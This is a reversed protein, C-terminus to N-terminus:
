AVRTVTWSGDDNAAVSFKRNLRGGRFKAYKKFTRLNTPTVFSAGLDMTHFPYITRPNDNCNEKHTAWRLNEARNDSRLGNRHAVDLREDDDGHFALAVLRHVYQTLFRGDRRIVVRSYGLADVYPRLIKRPSRVRGLSSAEYNSGPIPQWTEM